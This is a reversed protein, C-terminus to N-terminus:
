LSPTVHLSGLWTHDTLTHYTVPISKDIPVQDADSNGPRKSNRLTFFNHSVLSTSNRMCWQTHPPCPPNCQLTCVHPSRFRYASFSVARHRIPYPWDLGLPSVEDIMRSRDNAISPGFRNAIWDLIADLMCLGPGPAGNGYRKLQHSDVM